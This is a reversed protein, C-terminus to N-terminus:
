LTKISTINTLNEFAKTSTTTKIISLAKIITVLTIKRINQKYEILGKYKSHGKHGILNKHKKRDKFEKHGRQESHNNPEKNDMDILITNDKTTHGKREKDVTLIQNTNGNLVKGILKILEIMESM